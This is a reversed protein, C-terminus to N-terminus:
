EHSGGGGSDFMSTLGKWFRSFIGPKRPASEGHNSSSRAHAEYWPGAGRIKASADAGAASEQGGEQLVTELGLENLPKGAANAELADAYAEALVEQREQLRKLEEELKVRTESAEDGEAQMHALRNEAVALQTALILDYVRELPNSAATAAREARFESQVQKVRAIEARQTNIAEQQASQDVKPSTKEEPTGMVYPKEPPRDPIPGLTYADPDKKAVLPIAEAKPTVLPIPEAKPTVLPIPAAEEGTVVDRDHDVADTLANDNAPEAGLEVTLAARAEAVEGQLKNKAAAVEAQAAPDGEGVVAALADAQGTVAQIRAEAQEVVGGNSLEKPQEVVAEPLKKAEATQTSM